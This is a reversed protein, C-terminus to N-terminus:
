LFYQFLFFSNVNTSLDVRRGALGSMKAMFPQRNL